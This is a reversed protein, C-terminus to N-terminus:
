KNSRQNETILTTRRAACSPYTPMLATTLTVFCGTSSSRQRHMDAAIHGASITEDAMGGLPANALQDVAIAIQFLSM